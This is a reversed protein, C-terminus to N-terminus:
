FAGNVLYNALWIVSAGACVALLMKARPNERRRVEPLFDSTALELFFGAAAALMIVSTRASFSWWVTLLGGILPALADAILFGYDTRGPKEGNTSLLVTNMGDGLDHAAIGVAVAYGAPHSAAYALGIAMGDRLSHLVMMTAGIRRVSKRASSGAEMRSALADIGNGAALFLLFTVLLIQLMSEVHIGAATGLDLAEPLLDLFAAGLLLGAGLAVLLALSRRFRLALFGGALTSLVPVILLVLPMMEPYRM